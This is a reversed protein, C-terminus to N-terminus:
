TKSEGFKAFSFRVFAFLKSIESRRLFSAKSCEKVFSVRGSGWLSGATASEPRMGNKSEARLHIGDNSKTAGQENEWPQKSDQLFAM